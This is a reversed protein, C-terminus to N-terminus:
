FLITKISLTKQNGLIKILENDQKHKNPNSCIDMLFKQLNLVNKKNESVRKDDM